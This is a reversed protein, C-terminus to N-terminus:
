DSLPRIMLGGSQTLMKCSKMSSQTLGCILRTECQTILVMAILIHWRTRCRAADDGMMTQSLNTRHKTNRINDRHEGSHDRNITLITAVDTGICGNRYVRYVRGSVGPVGASRKALM